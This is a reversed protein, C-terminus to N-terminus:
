YGGQPSQGVASLGAGKRKIEVLRKLMSVGNPFKGGKKIIFEAESVPQECSLLASLDKKPRGGSRGMERYHEIGRNRLTALGGARGARRKILTLAERNM